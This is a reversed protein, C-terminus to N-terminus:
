IFIFDIIISDVVRRDVVVNSRIQSLLAIPDNIRHSTALNTGAHLTLRVLTHLLIGGTKRM